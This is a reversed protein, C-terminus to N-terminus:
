PTSEFGSAEEEDEEHDDDLGYRTFHPVDFVWTGTRADYSQFTTGEMNKLRKTHAKVKPSNEDVIPKQTAKDVPWCGYLEIRSPVNLGEGVPPKEYDDPYVSCEKSDFLVVKGPIDEIAPVSTLDVPDLFAVKGFGDRGVVFNSLQSLEGFGLEQLRHIPPDCWYEGKKLKGVDTKGKGKTVSHLKTPTSDAGGGPIVVTPNDNQNSLRGQSPGGIISQSPRIFLVKSPSTQERVSVGLQPDWTVKPKNTAGALGLAGGGENQLTRQANDLSDNWSTSDVKTPIVLKKKVSTRSRFAEPNIGGGSSNLASPSDSLANGIRTPSASRPGGSLNLSSGLNGVPPPTAFGRLKGIKPPVTAKPAFKRNYQVSANFALGLAGGEGENRLTRHSNDLSDNWSTSDVKTPIVLQKVSTRSRFAEPNIGGGSPDYWHEGKKLKGGDTEGKRRQSSGGVISQNGFLSKSPSTQKRVSVGLQSNWTVKPTNTVGALGLTTTQEPKSDQNTSPDVASSCPQPLLVQPRASDPQEPLHSPKLSNDQRLLCFLLHCPFHQSFTSGVMIQRHSVAIQSVLLKNLLSQLLRRM